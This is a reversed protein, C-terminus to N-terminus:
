QTPSKRGPVARLSNEAGTNDQRTGVSVDCIVVWLIRKQRDRTKSNKQLNWSSIEAAYSGTTPHAHSSEKANEGSEARKRPRAARTSITTPPSWWDTRLPRLSLSCASEKSSSSYSSSSSLVSSSRNPHTSNFQLRNFGTTGVRTGRHHQRPKNATTTVSTTTGHWGPDAPQQEEALCVDRDSDLRAFVPHPMGDM